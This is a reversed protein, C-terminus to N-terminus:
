LFFIFARCVMLLHAPVMERTADESMRTDKGGAYPINIAFQTKVSEGDFTPNQPATLDDDSSCATFGVAGVLAIAGM